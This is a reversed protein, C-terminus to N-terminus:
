VEFQLLLGYIPRLGRWHMAKPRPRLDRHHLRWQRLDERERVRLQHLLKFYAYLRWQRVKERRLRLRGRCLCRQHLETRERLRLQCLLWVGALLCWQQVDETRSRLQHHLNWEFLDAREHLGRRRLLRGDDRLLWHQM